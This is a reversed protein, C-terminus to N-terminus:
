ATGPVRYVTFLGNSVSVSGTNVGDNGTLVVTLEEGATLMVAASAVPYWRRGSPSPTNAGGGAVPGNVNSFINLGFEVSSQDETNGDIQVTASIQHLGSVQATYKFTGANFVTGSGALNSSNTTPNNFEIVHAVTDVDVVQSASNKVVAAYIKTAGSGGGVAAAIAANMETTTPLDDIQTQLPGIAAAIAAAIAADIQATLTESFGVLSDSIDMPIYDKETEDWVYPKQGDMLWPGANFTPKLGGIQWQLGGSSSVVQLRDLFARFLKNLDGRFGPPIPSGRVPLLVEQPM